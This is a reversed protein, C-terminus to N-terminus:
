GFCTIKTRAKRVAEAQARVRVIKPYSSRSSQGLKSSPPLPLCPCANNISQMKSLLASLCLCQSSRMIKQIICLVWTHSSFSLIIHLFLCTNLGALTLLREFAIAVVRYLRLSACTGLTNSLRSRGVLVKSWMDCSLKTKPRMSNGTSKANQSSFVAVACVCPGSLM